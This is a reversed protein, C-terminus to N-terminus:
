ARGGRMYATDALGRNSPISNLPNAEWVESYAEEVKERLRDSEIQNILTRIGTAHKPNQPPNNQLWREVYIEHTEDDRDILGANQVMQRAEVYEQMPWGLDAVAYGDPLRYCGTGTQHECTLFYFFALKDRHAELQGFRESRWVSRSVM